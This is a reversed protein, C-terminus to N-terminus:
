RWRAPNQRANREAERRQSIKEIWEWYAQQNEREDPRSLLEEDTLDSRPHQLRWEKLHAIDDETLDNQSLTNSSSSLPVDDSEVVTHNRVESLPKEVGSMTDRSSIEETNNTRSKNTKDEKASVADQM